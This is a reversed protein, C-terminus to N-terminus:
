TEGVERESVPEYGEEKLLVALVGQGAKRKGSYSGDCVHKVACSPSFEKLITMEPRFEKIQELCKKAGTLFAETRDEGDKSIIKAKGQLVDAGDGGQIESPTRPIPLRGQQEPCIALLEVGDEKCLAIVKEDPKSKGDYRCPQGLLCASVAIRKTQQKLDNM